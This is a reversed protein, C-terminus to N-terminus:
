SFLSQDTKQKQEKFFPSCCWIFLPHHLLSQGSHTSHAKDIIAQVVNPGIISSARNSFGFLAFFKIYWLFSFCLWCSLIILLLSLLCYNQQHQHKGPEWIWSSHTRGHHDKLKSSVFFAKTLSFLSPLSSPSQSLILMTLLKFSVLSSM